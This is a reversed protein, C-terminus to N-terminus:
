LYLYYPKLLKVFDSTYKRNEDQYIAIEKKIINNQSKKSFCSVVRSIKDECSYNKISYKQHHFMGFFLFERELLSMEYEPLLVWFDGDQSLLREVSKALLSLSLRENHRALKKSKLSSKFNNQFFPPNSIILDFKDEADCMFDAIDTHLVRLRSSWKSKEFNQCAQKVANEEIEVAVIESLTKQAIMLALVGTGTGIDLIRKPNNPNIIAGFLSSDTCVKQATIGQEVTFQKYKFFTNGM